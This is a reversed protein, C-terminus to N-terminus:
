TAAEEMTADASQDRRGQAATLSSLRVSRWRRPSTTAARRLFALLGRGHDDLTPRQRAQLLPEELGAPAENPM